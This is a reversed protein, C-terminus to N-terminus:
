ERNIVRIGWGRTPNIRRLPTQTFLRRAIPSFWGHHKYALMWHGALWLGLGVLLFAFSIAATGLRDRLGFDVMGFLGLIALFVGFARAVTPGILWAMLAAVFAVALYVFVM